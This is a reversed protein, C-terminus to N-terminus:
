GWGRAHKSPCGPLVQSLPRASILSPEPRDSLLQTSISGLPLLPSRNRLVVETHSKRAGVLPQARSEQAPPRFEATNMWHKWCESFSQPFACHARHWSPPFCPLFQLLEAPIPTLRLKGPGLEPRSPAALEQLLGPARSLVHCLSEGFYSTTDARLGALSRKFCCVATSM